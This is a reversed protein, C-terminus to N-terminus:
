EGARGSWAVTVQKGRPLDTARWEDAIEAVIELGRGGLDDWTPQRQTPWGPADDNVRLEVRDAAVVLEVGIVTAGARVSNTVLESVVLALDEPRPPIPRGGQSAFASTVFRRAAAPSRVDGPLETRM